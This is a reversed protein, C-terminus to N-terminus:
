NFMTLLTKGGFNQMYNKDGMDLRNDLPPSKHVSSNVIFFEMKQSTVGHTEQLFETVTNRQLMCRNSTIALTVLESIRTVRIISTSCEESVDTRVLVM